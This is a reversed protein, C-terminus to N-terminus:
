VKQQWLGLAAGTPDSIISFWGMNPVEQVDVHVKAGLGAAQKTAARVDDVAVYPLWASPAGPVPQTMMGGGPGADDPKFTSYIVGGGMDMDTITWGFLDKYFTKAKTVDTSGLELHCFPHAMSNDEKKWSPTERGAHVCLIKSPFPKRPQSVM